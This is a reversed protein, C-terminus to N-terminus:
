GKPPSEGPSHRAEIDGKAKIKEFEVGGSTASQASVNGGAEADKIKVGPPVTTPPLPNEGEAKVEGYKTKLKFRGKGGFRVFFIILVIALIGLGILTATSTDM